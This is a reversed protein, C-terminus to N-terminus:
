FKVFKERYNAELSQLIYVGSSLNSVDFNNGNQSWAFIQKGTLDFISWTIPIKTSELNQIQFETIVPNPFLILKNKVNRDSKLIVEINCETNQEYKLNLVEAINQAVLVAPGESKICSSALMLVEDEPIDEDGNMAKVLWKISNINNFDFHSNIKLMDLKQNLDNSIRKEENEKFNVLRSYKEKIVTDTLGKQNLLDKFEEFKFSSNKNSKNLIELIEISNPITSISELKYEEYFDNIDQSQTLLHQNSKIFRIAQQLQYYCIGDVDENGQCSILNLIQALNADVMNNNSTNNALPLFCSFSNDTNGSFWSSPSVLGPHESAVLTNYFYRTSNLQLASPNGIFHAGVNNQYFRNGKNIQQPAATNKMYVLGANNSVFQNNLFYTGLNISSVFLGVNNYELYNCKVDTDQCGIINIGINTSSTITNSEVVLEQGNKINFGEEFGNIQNNNFVSNELAICRLAWTKDEGNLINYGFNVNSCNHLSFAVPTYSTTNLCGNFINNYIQVNHSIYIHNEFQGPNNCNFKNREIITSSTNGDIFIPIAIYNSFENDEIVVQASGSCYINSKIVQGSMQATFLSGREVIRPDYTYDNEIDIDNSFVTYINNEGYYSQWVNYISLLHPLESGNIDHFLNNRNLITRCNEFSLNCDTFTSYNMNASYSWSFNIKSNNFTCDDIHQIALMGGLNLNGIDSFLTNQFYTIGNGFNVTASPTPIITMNGKIESDELVYTTLSYNTEFKLEALDFLELNCNKITLTLWPTYEITFSGDICFNENELVDNTITWGHVSIADWLTPIGVNSGVVQSYSCQATLLKTSLLLFLSTVFLIRKVPSLFIFVSGISKQKNM